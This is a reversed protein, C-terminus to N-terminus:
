PRAGNSAGPSAASAPVGRAAARSDPAPTGSTAPVTAPARRHETDVNTRRGTLRLFADYMPHIAARGGGSLTEFAAGDRAQVLDALARANENMAVEIADTWARASGLDAPAPAEVARLFVEPRQETWFAYEVAGCIVRVGPSQSCVLGIGPRVEIPRRPDVFRGQPTIMLLPQPDRARREAVYHAMARLSGPDDPAVGFMGLRRFFAFNALQAADIPSCPTRSAMFRDHLFFGVMPDWWSSHNIALVVLGPTERCEALLRSGGHALRVAYFRKSFLRRGYWAFVRRFRPDFRGPVV